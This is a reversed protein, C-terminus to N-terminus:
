IARANPERWRLLHRATGVLAVDILFALAVIAITAAFMYDYAGNEGYMFILKGAGTKAAIMEAAIDVVLSFGLAIRIGTLVEQAAAPLRVLRLIDHEPTGMARASWVLVHPTGCIGHYTYIVVPLVTSVVVASMDTTNGIGFWLLFLPVLATKPLSYTAKVLPGFFGEGARSVAMLAGIPLGIATGILLGALSRGITAAVDAYFSATGALDRGARAVAAPTPLFDRDVLGATLLAQWLVVLLVIPGLASARAALARTM